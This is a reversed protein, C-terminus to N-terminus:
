HRLMPVRCFVCTQRRHLFRESASLAAKNLSIAEDRCAQLDVLTLLSTHPLRSPQVVKPGPLHNGEPTLLNRLSFRHNPLSHRTGKMATARTHLESSRPRECRREGEAADVHKNETSFLFHFGAFFVRTESLTLSFTPPPKSALSLHM